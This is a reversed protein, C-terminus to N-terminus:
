RSFHLLLVLCRLHSMACCLCGHVCIILAISYINRELKNRFTVIPAGIGSSTIRVYGQEEASLANAEKNGMIVDQRGEAIVAGYGRNAMAAFAEVTVNRAFVEEEITIAFITVHHAQNRHKKHTKERVKRCITHCLVHALCMSFVACTTAVCMVLYELDQRMNQPAATM